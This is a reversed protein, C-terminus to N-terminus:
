AGAAASVDGEEVDADKDEPKPETEAITDQYVYESRIKGKRGQLERLYYLKARRVQGQSVLMIRDVVPSYLPFVREVGVGGSIKRVVFSASAGGGKKKIVVGEYPQVRTKEGEKVKVFVRVTDGVKFAPYQPLKRNLRQNVKKILSTPDPRKKM